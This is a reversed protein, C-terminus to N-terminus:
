PFVGFLFTRQSFILCFILSLFTLNNYAQMLLLAAEIKKGKVFTCHHSSSAYANSQM